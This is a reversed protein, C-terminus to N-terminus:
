FFFLWLVPSFLTWQLLRKLLLSFSSCQVPTIEKQRKLCATGIFEIAYVKLPPPRSNAPFLHM